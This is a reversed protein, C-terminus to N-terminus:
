RILSLLQKFDNFKTVGAPPAADTSDTHLWFAHLGVRLAGLIDREYDDGVMCTEDPRTRLKKLALLFIDPHPKERGTEESTVISPAYRFLDLKRLKLYQVRATMDTVFCLRRDRVADLFDPVGERFTMVEMFSNWYLDNLTLAHSLDKTGLLELTRQFCLLRNHCAATGYLGAHIENRALAYIERATDAAVNLERWIFDSVHAWAGEHAAQYDYLTNDLDLLIGAFRRCDM